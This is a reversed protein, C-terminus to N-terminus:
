NLREVTRKSYMECTDYNPFRHNRGACADNNIATSNALYLATDSRAGAPGTASQHRQGGGGGGGSAWLGSNDVLSIRTVTHGIMVAVYRLRLSNAVM